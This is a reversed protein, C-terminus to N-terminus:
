GNAVAANVALAILVTNFFFSVVAHATIARRMQMTQVNTDSVQATMGVTMSLYLFEWPGPEKCKGFEVSPVYGKRDDGRYHIHAYHFTMVLQLAVWGLPAGILLLVLELPTSQHKQNLALFVAVISYVIAALMLLTVILAGEDEVDAKKKLDDDSLTVILWFGTIAFAAFFMDSGIAAPVPLALARAVVFAVAGLLLSAYFRAHHRAHNALSTLL